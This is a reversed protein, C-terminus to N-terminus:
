KPERNKLGSPCLAWGCCLDLVNDGPQVLASLHPYLCQFSQARASVTFTTQLIWEYVINNDM